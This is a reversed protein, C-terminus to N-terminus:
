SSLCLGGLLFRCMFLNYSVELENKGGLKDVPTACFQEIYPMLTDRCLGPESATARTLGPIACYDVQEAVADPQPASPM